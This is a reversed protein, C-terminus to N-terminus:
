QAMYYGGLDLQALKALWGGGGHLRLVGPERRLDLSTATRKRAQCSPGGLAQEM